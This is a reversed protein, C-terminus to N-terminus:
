VELAAYVMNRMLTRYHLRQDASSTQLMLIAFFNQAPDVWCYTGGVGSWFFDGQSGPFPAEGVAFRVAFGLGFGYGPGPPYYDSRGIDHGLHDATMYAVTAPSLIRQGDLTGGCLLMRLFGAYDSATSLLGGGGRQGRRLECPDFFRPRGTGTQPFPQAVRDRKALPLQFCSETMGLPGFLTDELVQQLSHGSIIELIRGLVDTAHSYHWVTGPEWELPLAALRDVFEANTLDESLFGDTVYARQAPSDGLYGYSLGATHRMLDQITPAQRAPMQTGDPQMVRLNAFSPIFAEVPQDLRLLGREVLVMASVTVVPKTMSYIRWIADPKLFDRTTTDRYGSNYAFILRERNGVVVSAGPIEMAAVDRDLLRGVAELGETSLSLSNAAPVHLGKM